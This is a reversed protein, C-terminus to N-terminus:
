VWNPGEYWGVLSYRIGSEIETVRHEQYPMFCIITGQERLVNKNPNEHNKFEFDGGSYSTPDCLQIMFSIKRSKGDTRNWNIDHHWDYKYGPELYETFQIYPLNNCNVKFGENFTQIIKDIFTFLEHFNPNNKQIWRVKTKRLKNVELINSSSFISADENPIKTALNIINECIHPPILKNCMLWQPYKVNQNEKYKPIIINRLEEM